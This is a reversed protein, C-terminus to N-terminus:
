DTSDAEVVRQRLAEYARRELSKPDLEVKGATPGLSAEATMGEFAQVTEEVQAVNGAIKRLGLTNEVPRRKEILCMSNRFRIEHVHSLMQGMPPLGFREEFFTMPTESMEPVTWHELNVYDSLRRFFAAASDPRELGGNWPTQFGCMLDECIYVGGDCLRTFLHPFARIIDASQHSGDDIVIDFEPCIGDIETFTTEAGADGVVVQIEPAEFELARCTPNIDCGIIHRKRPFYKSWIELSGGNQVGIELLRIQDERFPALAAEYVQLYTSWKDSVKGTHADWIACLSLM